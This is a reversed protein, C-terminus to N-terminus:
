GEMATMYRRMKNHPADKDGLFDEALEVYYEANKGTSHYDSYMMNLAVYFDLCDFQKLAPHSKGLEKVQELTWHGGMTGDKNEMKSVYKKAEEETLPPYCVMDKIDKLFHEVKEPYNRAMDEFFMETKNKIDEWIRGNLQKNEAKEMIEKFYKM